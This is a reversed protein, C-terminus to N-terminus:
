WNPVHGYHYLSIFIVLVPTVILATVTSHDGVGAVGLEDGPSWVSDGDVVGPGDAVSVPSIFNSAKCALAEELFRVQGLFIIKM